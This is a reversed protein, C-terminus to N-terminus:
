NSQVVTVETEQFQGVESLARRIGNVAEQDGYQDATAVVEHDRLYPQIDHINDFGSVLIKGQLGAQRLAALVGIAMSDNACLIAKVEPHDKLIGAAVTTATGTLWMGPRSAVIRMGAEALADDFGLVRQKGNYATPLGEVIAVPDGKKLKAAVVAGVQRGADRNDPGVYTVKVGLANLKPRDLSDDINVVDIGADTAQKVVPILTLSDVPALVIADVHDAIAAKVLLIQAASDTENPIGSVILDFRRSNLVHYYLASKKMDKFFENDLSKMVLAIRPKATDAAAPSVPVLGCLGFFGYLGAAVLLPRVISRLRTSV